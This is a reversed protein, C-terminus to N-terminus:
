SPQVQGNLGGFVVCNLLQTRALLASGVNIFRDIGGKSTPITSLKKKAVCRLLM